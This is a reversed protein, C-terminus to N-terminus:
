HCQHPIDAKFYDRGQQILYLVEQPRLLPEGGTIVLRNAGHSRAFEYDRRINVTQWDLADHRLASLSSKSFCFLCNLNCVM